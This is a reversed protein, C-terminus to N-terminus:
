RLALPKGLIEKLIIARKVQSKDELASRLSGLPMMAEKQQGRRELRRQTERAGAAKKDKFDLTERRIEELRKQMERQRKLMPSELPDDQEGIEGHSTDTHRFTEWPSQEEDYADREPTPQPPMAPPDFSKIVEKFIDRLPPPAPRESPRRNDWSKPMPPPVPRQMPHDEVEQLQRVMEERTERELEKVEKAEGRSKLWSGLAAGIVLLIYLNDFILDM